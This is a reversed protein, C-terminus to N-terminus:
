KAAEQQLRHNLGIPTTHWLSSMEKLLELIQNLAASQSPPHM